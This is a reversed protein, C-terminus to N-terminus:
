SAAALEIRSVGSMPPPAPPGVDLPVIIGGGGDVSSARIAGNPGEKVWLGERSLNEHCGPTVNDHGEIVKVAKEVDSMEAARIEPGGTAIFTQIQRRVYVGGCCACTLLMRPLSV